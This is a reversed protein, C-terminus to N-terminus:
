FYKAFGLKYAVHVGTQEGSIASKAAAPLRGTNEANKGNWVTGDASFNRLFMLNRVFIRFTDFNTNINASVKRPQSGRPSSSPSRCVYQFFPTVSAKTKACRFRAFEVQLDFVFCHHRRVLTYQIVRRRVPEQRRMSGSSLPPLGDM